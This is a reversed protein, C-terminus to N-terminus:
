SRELLEFVFPSYVAGRSTLRQLEQRVVGRHFTPHKLLEYVGAMDKLLAKAEHPPSPKLSDLKKFLWRAVTAALFLSWTALIEGSAIVNALFWTAGLFVMELALRGLGAMVAKGGKVGSAPGLEDPEGLSNARQEWLVEQAFALDEVFVLADVLQRELTQSRLVPNQRLSWACSELEDKRPAYGYAQPGASKEGAQIIGLVSLHGWLTDYSRKLKELDPKDAHAAEFAKKSLSWDIDSTGLWEQSRTAVRFDRLMEFAADTLAQLEAVSKAAQGISHGLEKAMRAAQSYEDFYAATLVQYVTHGLLGQAAQLQMETKSRVNLDLLCRGLSAFEESLDVKAPLPARVRIDAQCGKAQVDVLLREFNERSLGWHVTAQLLPVEGNSLGVELSPPTDLERLTARLTLAAIRWSAGQAELFTRSSLAFFMTLHEEAFSGASSFVPKTHV